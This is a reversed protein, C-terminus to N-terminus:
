SKVFVKGKKVFGKANLHKTAKYYSGFIRQADQMSIKNVNELPDVPGSAKRDLDFGHQTLNLSIFAASGFRNKTVTFDRVHINDPDEENKALMITMDVSHPLLTSGKYNGQKTVHQIVGIVTDTKKALSCLREVIYEEKKKSSEYKSKCSLTPYSDIVVFDFKNKEIQECIEDIDTMNAVKVGKIGIRKCNYSIQIVSEEGSIYASNKGKSAIMNAVQLLFTSKGSGPGGALTFTSGPLFGGGGFLTDVMDNDTKFRNFFADPISVDEVNVFGTKALDINM